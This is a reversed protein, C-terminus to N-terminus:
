ISSSRCLVAYELATRSCQYHKSNDGRCLQDSELADIGWLRIRQGHIEIMDGDIVSAKGVIDSASAPMISCALIASLLLARMAGSLGECINAMQKRPRSARSSLWIM